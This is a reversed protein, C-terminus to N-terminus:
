AERCLRKEPPLGRGAVELVPAAVHVTVPEGREVEGLQESRRRVVAALDLVRETRRDAQDLRGLALVAAPIVAGGALAPAAEAIAVRRDRHTEGWARRRDGKM